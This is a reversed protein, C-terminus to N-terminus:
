RLNWYSVKDSRLMSVLNIKRRLLSCEARPWKWFARTNYICKVYLILMHVSKRIVNNTRWIDIVIRRLREWNKWASSALPFSPVFWLRPFRKRQGTRANCEVCKKVTICNVAIRWSTTTIYDNKPFTVRSTRRPSGRKTYRLTQNEMKCPLKSEASVSTRDARLCSAFLLSPSNM